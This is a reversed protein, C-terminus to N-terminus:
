TEERMRKWISELHGIEWSMATETWLEIWNM